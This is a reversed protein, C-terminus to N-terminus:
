PTIQQPFRGSASSSDSVPVAETAPAFRRELSQAVRDRVQCWRGYSARWLELFREPLPTEEFGADRATEVLRVYVAEREAFPYAPGIQDLWSTVIAAARLPAQVQEHTLLLDTALADWDDQALRVEVTGDGARVMFGLWEVEQGRGLDPPEAAAPPKLPMAAVRLLRELVAQAARAEEASQCLLLTDDAVRILPVGNGFKRWQRDLFHHLYANLLLASLPGGQRLGCRADNAIIREILAVLSDAGPLYKRLVDLLRGHPVQTFADRIDAVVWV